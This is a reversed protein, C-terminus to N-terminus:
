LAEDQRRRGIDGKWYRYYKVRHELVGEKMGWEEMGKLM